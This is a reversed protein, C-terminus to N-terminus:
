GPEAAAVEHSGVVHDRDRGRHQAMPELEPGFGLELAVGGVVCDRGCDGADRNGTSTRERSGSGILGDGRAAIASTITPNTTSATGPQIAIVRAITTTTSVATSMTSARRSGRTRRVIEAASARPTGADSAISVFGSTRASTSRRWARGGSKVMSGDVPRPVISTSTTASRRPASRSGGTAARRRPGRPKPVHVNSASPPVSRRTYGSTNTACRSTTASRRPRKRSGPRRVRPGSPKPM